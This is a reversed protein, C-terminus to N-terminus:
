NDSNTFYNVYIQMNELFFIYIVIFYIPMKQKPHSPKTQLNSFKFFAFIIKLITAFGYQFM